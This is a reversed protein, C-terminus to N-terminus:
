IHLDPSEPVFVHLFHGIEPTLLQKTFNKRDVVAHVLITKGVEKEAKTFLYSLTFSHEGKRELCPKIMVEEGAYLPAKYDAEAHVIPFLYRGEQWKVRVIDEFLEVSLRLLETFYLVGTSDTDRLYIKKIYLKGM